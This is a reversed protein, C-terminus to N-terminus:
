PLVFKGLVCWLRCLYEVQHNHDSLPFSPSFFSSQFLFARPLTTATIAKEEIALIKHSHEGNM